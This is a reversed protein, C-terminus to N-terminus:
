RQSSKGKVVPNRRTIDRAAKTLLRLSSLEYGNKGEKRFESEIIAMKVITPRIAFISTNPRDIFFPNVPYYPTEAHYMEMTRVLSTTKESRKSTPM